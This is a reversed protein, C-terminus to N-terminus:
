KYSESDGVGGQEYALQGGDPSWSARIRWLPCSTPIMTTSNTGNPNISLLSACSGGFAYPIERNAGPFASPSAPSAPFTVLAGATLAGAAAIRAFRRKLDMLIAKPM